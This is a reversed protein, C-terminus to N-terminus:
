KSIPDIAEGADKRNQLQEKLAGGLAGDDFVQKPTRRAAVAVKCIASAALPLLVNRNAM